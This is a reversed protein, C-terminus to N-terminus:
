PTGSASLRRPMSNQFSPRSGSRRRPRPEAAGESGSGGPAPGRRRAGRRRGEGARVVRRSSGCRGGGPGRDLYRRDGATGRDGCGRCADLNRLALALRGRQVDRGRPVQSHDSHQGTDDVFAFRDLQASVRSREGDDIFSVMISSTASPRFDSPKDDPESGSTVNKPDPDHALLVLVPAGAEVAFGFRIRNAYPLAPDTGTLVGDYAVTAQQWGSYSQTDLRQM